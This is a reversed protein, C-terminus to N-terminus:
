HHDDHGHEEHGHDDHTTSLQIYVACLLTFVVAQLLGVLLEMFYFPLPAICGLIFKGTDGLGFMSGLDMMAHLLSEGAFINGFLRLSLSVPRFAFGVTEIVGVMLFVLVLFGQILVNDVKGKPAFTHTIFGWVGLESITLILWLVMFSLAIGLTMNLDATAPRLVPAEMHDTNWFGNGHGWGITGVGPLLGFYNATLIFLFITALLPFAKKAQKPGVISEVRDYLFEIIAEFFNQWSHPILSMKNTAKGAFFLLICLVIGAVFCSNTFFSLFGEKGALSAAAREVSAFVPLIIATETQPLFM